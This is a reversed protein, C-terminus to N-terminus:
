SHLIISCTYGLIGLRLAPMLLMYKALLWCTDVPLVFKRVCPTNISRASTAYMLSRHAKYMKAVREAM